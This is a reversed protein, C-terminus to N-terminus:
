STPMSPACSHSHNLRTSKRDKGTLTGIASTAFQVAYDPHQDLWQNIQEDMHEIAEPRLKAVFSRVRVAGCGDKNTPRRWDHHAIATSNDFTRIRRSAASPEAHAPAEELEVSADDEDEEDPIPIAQALLEDDRIRSPKDLESM